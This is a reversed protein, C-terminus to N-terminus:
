ETVSMESNPDFPVAYELPVKGGCGPQRVIVADPLVAMVQAYNGERLLRSRALGRAVYQREFGVAIIIWDGPKFQPVNSTTMFEGKM